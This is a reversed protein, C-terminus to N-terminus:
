VSDSGAGRSRLICINYISKNCIDAVTGSGALAGTSHVPSAPTQWTAKITTREPVLLPIVQAAQKVKPGWYYITFLPTRPELDFPRGVFRSKPDRKRGPTWHPGLPAWSTGLPVWFPGLPDWFSDLPHWPPGLFPGPSGLLPGPPAWPPRFPSGPIGRSPM